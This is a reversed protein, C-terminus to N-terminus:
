GAPQRCACVQPELERRIEEAEPLNLESFTSEASRWYEAAREHEGIAHWAQAIGRSAQALQGRNGTVTALDFAAQYTALAVRPEGRAQSTAARDLHLQTSLNADTVLNAAKSAQEQYRVADDLNDRLRHVNGIYNLAYAELSRDGIDRALALADDHNAMAEDLRDLRQRVSGLNDLAHALGRVQGIAHLLRIAALQQHEAQELNGHLENLYGLHSLAYAQGREDDIQEYKALAAEFRTIAEAHDGLEMMPVAIACLSNAEGRIDGLRVWCSLAQTALELAHALLGSRWHVASLRLLVHGQGYPNAPDAMVTHRALELTETWDKRYGVTNFFRWLLVALKWTHEPHGHSAAYRIAAVLNPWETSLWGLAAKESDVTVIVPCTHAVAPQQDRDFPFATAIASSTTVLYFDLLRELAEAAERPADPLPISEAFEKLPDLMHYREPVAEELLSVGHLDNLLSRARPVDCDALAAAAAVSLDPGPIRGLVRFLTKHPEDLQEYSVRCAIIGDNNFGADARWPGAQALLRVLHDLPWRHHRRFQSAVVRIQLPLWGCRRVVEGIAPSQGYLRNTGALKRFLDAADDAPLPGLRINDAAELDGAKRSTVIALCGPTQPLLPRVQDETAANDIVLLTRTGTLKDRYLAIREALTPPIREAPVGLDRLVHILAEVPEIPEVNPTFGNLAVFLRADPFRDSLKNAAEIALATKGVGPMGSLWVTAPESTSAASRAIAEISAFEEARGTFRPLRPPLTNRLEGRQALWALSRLENSTEMGYEDLADRTHQYIKMAEVRDGNALLARMLLTALRHRSPEAHVAPRLRDRVWRHNGAALELEALDGLADLLADDLSIVETGGIRDVDLDELFRGRWLDIADHLLRTAAADDGDRRATDAEACLETFRVTDIRRRDIRLVYGTPTTEIAVDDAGAARFAKRLRAVYSTVLNTRPRSEGWVIEILREASVPKNARLLLVALAYRQQLDGLDVQVDGHWAEFPGLLRFEM